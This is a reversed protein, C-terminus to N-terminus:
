CYLMFYVVVGTISVYAWIPWTWRVLRKHKEREGRFALQISRLIMPVVCAALLMHSFLIVLYLTKAWGAGQYHHTGSLYFRTLYSALFVSSTIFAAVMYQRHLSENRKSIAIKGAVLFIFCSGNLMANLAPHMENWVFGRQLMFGWLPIMTLGIALLLWHLPKGFFAQSPIHSSNNTTM